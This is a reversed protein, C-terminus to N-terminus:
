CQSKPRYQDRYALPACHFVAKFSHHFHSIDDFGCEFAVATVSKSTDTLLRAAHQLRLRQVYKHWTDGTVKRFLETFQRRGLCVSHAAEELSGPRYFESRLRLAYNAVRQASDNGREFVPLAGQARRQALRVTLVALDMLRSCLTTEWGPQRATQEFIMEQFLSRVLRSRDIQASDLDLPLMGQRSLEGTLWPSLLEPRYHVFYLTVPANPLDQQHHPVRAAIHFLTNPGVLYKRKGSEWRAQGDIVLLFKAYDDTLEGVFGPAHRSEQVVVGFDTMQVRKPSIVLDDISSAEDPKM